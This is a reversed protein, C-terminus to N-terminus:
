GSELRGEGGGIVVMFPIHMCNSREHLDSVAEVAMM